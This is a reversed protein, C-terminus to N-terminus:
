MQKLSILHKLPHLHHQRDLLQIQAANGEVILQIKEDINGIADVALLFASGFDVRLLSM